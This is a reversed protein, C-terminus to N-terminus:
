RSAQQTLSKELIVEASPQRATQSSSEWTVFMNSIPASADGTSKYLLLASGDPRPTFTGFSIVRDGRVAWLQYTLAFSVAPLKQCFLGGLNQKSSWVYRCQAGPAAGTGTLETPILDGEVALGILTAYDLLTSQMLRQQASSANLEAQLQLMQTRQAVDLEALRALSANDEKLDNVQSSLVVAWAIAGVAFVLLVAAAAAWWRSTQVLTAPTVRPRFAGVGGLVREKLRPPARFVPVALPLQEATISYARVLARCGACGRLHAELRRTSSADLAGLTFAEIDERVPGCDQRM